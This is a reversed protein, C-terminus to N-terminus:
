GGTYHVVVSRVATGTSSVPALAGLPEGRRFYDFGFTSATGTLGKFPEGRRYYAFDNPTAAM